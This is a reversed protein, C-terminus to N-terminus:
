AIKQWNKCINRNIITENILYFREFAERLFATLPIAAEGVFMFDFIQFKTFKLINLSM